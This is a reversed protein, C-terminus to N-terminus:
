SLDLPGGPTLNWEHAHVLPVRNLALLREMAPQIEDRSLSEDSNIGVKDGLPAKDDDAALHNAKVLGRLLEPHFRTEDARRDPVM